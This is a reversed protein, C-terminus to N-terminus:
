RAVYRLVHAGHSAGHLLEHLCRGGRRHGLVRAFRFARVMRLLPNRRELLVGVFWPLRHHGPDRHRFDLGYHATTQHARGDKPYRTRSAHRPHCQGRRPVASGQILHAVGYQFAGVGCALVMFGLQSVTSYALVKKIDNQVLGITAAFLATLAGVVAITTMVIDSHVLLFSMRTMLYIGSTVMTAAHILASVPTPGAMADPLWVYLPLQASKGTVGLLMCLGMITVLLGNDVFWDPSLGSVQRAIDAYEISGFLVVSIFMAVLFGLDGVRNAIFAKMGARANAEESYWYGILLYSCVGVGEWGLFTVLMNSGLVLCLMSFVFLNLYAFFRYVGEESHMYGGAYIHILSGVGTIILLLTGSLRDVSLGFPVRFPQGSVLQLSIWDFLSTSVANGAAVPGLVLLLSLVFPIAIMATAFATIVSRPARRLFFGNVLAGLLPLGVIVALFLEYNM